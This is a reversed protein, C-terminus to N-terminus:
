HNQEGWPFSGGQWTQHDHANHYHLYLPKLKDRSRAFGHSWLTPVVKHTAAKWTFDGDQWTQQGYASCYHLYLPKLKDWLKAPGRSRVMLYSYPYSSRLFFWWGAFNPPWLSHPVPSIVNKTISSCSELHEQKFTDNINIETDSRQVHNSIARYIMNILGINTVRAKPLFLFFVCLCSKDTQGFVIFFLYFLAPLQHLILFKGESGILWKLSYWFM